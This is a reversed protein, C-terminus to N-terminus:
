KSGLVKNKQELAKFRNIIFWCILGLMWYIPFSYVHKWIIQFYIGMWVMAPEAIFALFLSLLGTAFFFSRFSSKWKQYVLMFPIIVVGVDYPYLEPNIYPSLRVPYAWVMANSGISDLIIAAVGYFLGFATIEVLNKKDVIVWWLIAPIISLAILFWWKLTFYNQTHWYSKLIEHYQEEAELFEHFSITALHSILSQSIPMLHNVLMTNM